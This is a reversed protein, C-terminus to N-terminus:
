AMPSAMGFIKPQSYIGGEVEEGRGEETSKREGKKDRGKL